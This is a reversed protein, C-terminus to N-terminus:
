DEMRSDCLEIVKKFYEPIDAELHIEKGTIPHKFDLSRAHLMQGEVGFENKGNSYVDDGVVPHGIQSMHVRIQHTRGTDIKIELLTYKDYRKLVRFHTIAEKGDKDVAM